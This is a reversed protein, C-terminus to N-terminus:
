PKMLKFSFSGNVSVVYSGRPQGTLDVVAEGVGRSVIPKVLKGDISVVTLRDTDSLGSVRVMSRHTLDFRIRSTESKVERIEDIEAEGIVLDKVKDREFTLTNWRSDESANALGILYTVTMVGEECKIEPRDVPLLFQVNQGDVLNVTLIGQKEAIVDVSFLWSLILFILLLYRKM